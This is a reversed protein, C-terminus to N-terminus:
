DRDVFPLFEINLFDKAREQYHVNTCFKEGKVARGLWARDPEQKGGPGNLTGVGIEPNGQRKELLIENERTIIGLTAKKM